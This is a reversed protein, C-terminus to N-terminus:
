KARDLVPNGNKLCGPCTRGVFQGKSRKEKKIGCERCHIHCLYLSCDKAPCEVKWRCDQTLHQEGCPCKKMSCKRGSHGKAGCMCCRYSCLMANKHKCHGPHYPSGCKRSCRVYCQSSMHYQPFPRCKCRNTVKIPCRPAKHASSNCYGCVSPCKKTIHTYQACNACPHKTAKTYQNKPPSQHWEPKDTFMAQIHTRSLSRRRSLKDLESLRKRPFYIVWTDKLDSKNLGEINATHWAGLPGLPPVSRSRQPRGRYEGGIKGFPTTWPPPGVIRRTLNTNRLPEPPPALNLWTNGIFCPDISFLVNNPADIPLYHGGSYLSHRYHAATAPQLGQLHEVMDKKWGAVHKTPTEGCCFSHYSKLCIRMSPSSELYHRQVLGLIIMGMNDTPPKPRTELLGCVSLREIPIIWSRRIESNTVSWNHDTQLLRSLVQLDLGLERDQTKFPSYFRDCGQVWPTHCPLTYQRNYVEAKVRQPSMYDQMIRNVLIDRAGLPRHEYRNFDLDIGNLPYHSAM